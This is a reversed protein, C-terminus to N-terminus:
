EREGKKAWDSVTLNARIDKQYIGMGVSEEEVQHTSVAYLFLGISYTELFCGSTSRNRELAFALFQSFQLKKPYLFPM